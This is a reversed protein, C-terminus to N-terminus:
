ADLPSRVGYAGRGLVHLYKMTTQVTTHGLLKQVTRIDTGSRLLHTAFSHRLTHCTAPKTIGSSRLASKFANQVASTSRHWRCPRDPNERNIARSPFVWCWGFEFPASAKKVALAGPLPSAIPPDEQTDATWQARVREVQDRLAERLSEPMITIRDKAGKGGRVVLERADFDLDQVRLTVVEGVRLGAGYLLNAALRNEAGVLGLVARTEGESLVTPLRKPRKAAQFVLDGMEMRLVRKYLFALANLAQRQTASALERETALSTMFEGIEAEGLEQPHRQMDFYRLFERIWRWYIEATRESHGRRVIETRFQQRLKV